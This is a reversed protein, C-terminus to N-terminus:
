KKTNLYMNDKYFLVNDNRMRSFVSNVNIKIKIETTETVHLRHKRYSVVNILTNSYLLKLNQYVVIM